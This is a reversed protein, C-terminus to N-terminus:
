RLVRYQVVPARYTPRYTPYYTPRSFVSHSGYRSTSCCGCGSGHSSHRYSRTPYLHGYSRGYTSYGYRQGYSSHGYSPRGYSSHGYSPRGYSSHGYSPRGYSSHGSSRGHYSPRSSGFSISFGGALSQEAAMLLIAAAVALGLVTKTTRTKRM